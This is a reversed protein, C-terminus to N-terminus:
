HHPGPLAGNRARRRPDSGTRDRGITIIGRGARFAGVKAAVGRRGHGFQGFDLDRPEAKGLADAARADGGNADALRQAPREAHAVLREDPSADALHAPAALVQPQREIAAAQQHVQAHRAREGERRAGARRARVVVEVEDGRLPVSRSVSGRRKPATTQDAAASAAGAAFSSAPRPRSGNSSRKSPAWRWAASFRRRTATLVASSPPSITTPAPLM